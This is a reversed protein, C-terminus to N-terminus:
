VIGKKLLREVLDLLTKSTFPKGLYGDAKDEEALMLDVGSGLATFMIVPIHRTDDSRKLTRCVDLGHVGPMVVDLLVLDPKDNDIITLAEEGSNATTVEYEKSELMIKTISLVDEEDDVVLIKPM